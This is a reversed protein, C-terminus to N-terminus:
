SATDSDYIKSMHRPNTLVLEGMFGIHQVIMDQNIPSQKGGFRSFDRDPHYFYSMSGSDLAYSTAAPMATGIGGELIIPISRGAGYFSLNSFGMKGLKNEDNIRQIAEVADSYASFHTDCALIMDPGKGRGGMSTQIVQHRYISQASDKNFQTAAAGTKDLIGATDVDLVNTRWIANDARSIGGYVGTTPDTPVAKQLGGIQDTLAGASHLDEVFRDQLETEASDIYTSMLDRRQNRGSNKLLEEGTLAISVAGMKPEYEADNILEKRTVSLLDAASYRTYTGSQAFQLPVRITPGSFTKRMNKEKITYWVVNSNSVLDQIAGVRTELALSFAQTLKETTTLAM